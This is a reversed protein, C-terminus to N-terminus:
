IWKRKNTEPDIIWHRGQKNNRRKNRTEDNIKPRNKIAERMKQKTEESAKMGLRAKNGKNKAGIKQKCAESCIHSKRNHKYNMNYGRGGACLNLCLPDTKWKDGILIEEAENLEDVNDYFNLIQKIYTENEIKNYKKFYHQIKTGSGTYGDNLDNTKHQGLYYHGAFSGKLCIIKYTYYFKHM